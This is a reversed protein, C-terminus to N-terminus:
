SFIFKHLNSSSNSNKWTLVIQVKKTKLVKPLFCILSLLNLIVDVNPKFVLDCQEVRWYKEQSNLTTIKNQFKIKVNNKVKECNLKLKCTWVWLYVFKWRQSWLYVEPKLSLVEFKKIKKKIESLNIELCDVM